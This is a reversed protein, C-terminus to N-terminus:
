SAPVIEFQHSQMELTEAVEADLESV